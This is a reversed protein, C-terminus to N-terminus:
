EEGGGTRRRVYEFILITAAQAANLSEFGGPMPITIRRGPQEEPVGHAESGIVVVSRDFIGPAIFCSEGRHPDSIAVEAFGYGAARALLEPLDAFTRIDMAFQAGLASRIVKPSYIDACDGALWLGPVGAALATRIITGLNGPDSVRDCAILFPTEPPRVAEPRPPTLVALIGPPSVTDSLGAMVERTVTYIPFGAQFGAAFELHEPTVVAFEVLEPRRRFLEGAARRGECLTMGSTKRGHKAALSRILQKRARTLDAQSIM